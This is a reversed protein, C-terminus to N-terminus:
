KIKTFQNKGQFLLKKEADFSITELTETEELLKKEPNYLGSTKQQKYEPEISKGDLVRDYRWKRLIQYQGVAKNQLSIELTDYEKGFESQSSRIYTGPIFEKMADNEASSCGALFFAAIITIILLRKM